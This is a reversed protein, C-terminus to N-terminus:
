VDKTWKVLKILDKAHEIDDGHRLIESELFKVFAKAEPEDLTEVIVKHEKNFIMEKEKDQGLNM